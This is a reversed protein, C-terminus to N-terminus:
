GGRARALLAEYSVHQPAASGVTIYVGGDGVRLLVRPGDVVDVQVEGSAPLIIADGAARTVYALPQLTKAFLDYNGAPMGSGGMVGNSTFRGSFAWHCATGDPTMKSELNRWREAFAKGDASGSISADDAHVSANCRGGSSRVTLNSMQYHLQARPSRTSMDMNIRVNDGAGASVSASGNYTKLDGGLAIICSSFGLTVNDGNDDITVQGGAPCPTTRSAKAILEVAQDSAAGSRATGTAADRGNLADSTALGIGGEIPTSGTGFQQVFARMATTVEPSDFSAERTGANAAAGSDDDTSGGGGCASLWVPGIGLAFALLLKRSSPVSLTSCRSPHLRHSATKM